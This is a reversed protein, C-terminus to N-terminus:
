DPNPVTQLPAATGAPEAALKTAADALRYYAVAVSGRLMEKGFRITRGEPMCKSLADAMVGFNDKEQVSAVESALLDRSEQPIRRVVCEAYRAMFGDLWALRYEERFEDAKKKKKPVATEDLVPFPRHQLPPVKSFDTFSTQGFDKRMLAGALAYRYLEGPFTMQIGNEPKAVKVLCEGNILRSFKGKPLSESPLDKVLFERALAVRNQYGLVCEAYDASLARVATENKKDAASAPSSGIAILLGLVSQISIRLFNM